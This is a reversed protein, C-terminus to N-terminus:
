HIIVPLYVEYKMVKVIWNFTISADQSPIGDDIVTIRVLYPSDIVAWDPLVGSILGTDPNISLNPPLGEASFTLSDGDPDIAEIQISVEEDIYSIITGPNVLQPAANVNDVRWTFQVKTNKPDVDNDTVMITVDYNKWEEEGAAEYSITGTIVGTDKDINLGLPLNNAKFNLSDGDPDSAVIQLPDIIDGEDNSQNQPTSVDPARNTNAITWNFSTTDGLPPNGDDEVTVEVLYPSNNFAEYSLTGSILGTNENINLGPPLPDASYTLTDNHLDTATIQLSISDGEADNQDGPPDQITPPLNTKSVSWNFTITTTGFPKGDSVSVQVNYPSNLSATDSITGSINGTDPNISLNSPLGTANYTLDDGNPDTAVIPLSVAEGETDSQQGPNTVDPPDNTGCAAAIEDFKQKWVSAMKTYGTAYPHLNDIMDGTPDGPYISYNLGAGDEMDVMFVESNYDLRAAVMAQVNNNFTNVVPNNPVMDIIRAVIVVVSNGTDGEYENIEDLIDEVDAPDSNLANTGIHLLIVDPPNQNLWNAGGNNYINEAIQTDTWGNHGEHQPDSFPYAAGNSQSGVFDVTYGSTDLLNWLDYRYSIDDEPVEPDDSTDHGSFRGVTISDGLPMVEITGECISDVNNPSTAGVGIRTGELSLIIIIVIMVLRIFKLTNSRKM